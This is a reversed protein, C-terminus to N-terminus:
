ETVEAPSAPTGYRQSFMDRLTAQVEPDAFGRLARKEWKENYGKSFLYVIKEAADLNAISNMPRIRKRIEKITREIANTTYLAYRIMEPYKYFCHLDELDDRWSQVERPYKTNWSREFAKFCVLAEEMTESSYVGKLDALVATKDKARVKTLINRLKHVVCRQFDAKPFVDLFAEKLGSLGDAVGILIEQVGRQKLNNFVERCGTASEQGGVYYGLIQRHGDEDIGMVVYISENEVTDRKIAAYLGDMYVVSYRKKLPRHRWADVDALVVNTINTITTPSYKTGYMKEIFQAIDRTSMGGKYMSIVAEELWNDRRSYPEFLGTHFEGNRDRPVNLDPIEGYKTELGRKYHGNRSNEEEAHEVRLFNTLEERMLLELREQIFKTVEDQLQIALVDRNIQFM